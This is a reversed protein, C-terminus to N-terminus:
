RYMALEISDMYQCMSLNFQRYDAKTFEETASIVTERVFDTQNYFTISIPVGITESVGRITLYGAEELSLLAEADKMSVKSENEANGVFVEPEKTYQFILSAASRIQSWGVRYTLNWEAYLSNERKEVGLLKM